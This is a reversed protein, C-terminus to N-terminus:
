VIIIYEVPVDCEYDDIRIGEIVAAIEFGLHIEGVVVGVGRGRELEVAGEEVGVDVRVTFEADGNQM